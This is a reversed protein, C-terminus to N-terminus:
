SETIEKQVVGNQVRIRIRSERNGNSFRVEVDDPDQNHVDTQWGATATSADLTLAGDAFTVTIRGGISSYTKTSPAAPPTSTPTSGSSPQSTGSNDITTPTVPM